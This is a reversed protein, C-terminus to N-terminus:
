RRIFNKAWCDDSSECLESFFQVADVYDISIAKAKRTKPSLFPELRYNRYNAARRRLISLSDDMKKLKEILQENRNFDILAKVETELRETQIQERTKM